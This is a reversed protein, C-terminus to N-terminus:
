CNIHLKRLLESPHNHLENLIQLAYPIDIAGKLSSLYSWDLHNHSISMTGGFLQISTKLIFIPLCDLQKFVLFSSNINLVSRFLNKALAVSEDFLGSLTAEIHVILQTDDSTVACSINSERLLSELDNLSIRKGFLKAFRDKGVLLIIIDMM